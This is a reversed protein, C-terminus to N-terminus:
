GPNAFFESPTAGFQRRFMATFASPSAYGADYAVDLVRRGAALQQLAFLLRAQRRWEGFSMGTARQFRRQLTRSDIGLWAAWDGASRSDDPVERLRQCLPLLLPDDPLPLALPLSPLVQLEDLLVHILREARSGPAHPPVLGIAALLLERLLPTVSMVACTAPMNVVADPRVYVSRVLVRTLMRVQHWEGPPIWIARSPPTIWQGAPTEVEMVGEIAFLVQAVPHTHRITGTGAPYTEAKGILLGDAMAPPPGVETIPAAPDSM